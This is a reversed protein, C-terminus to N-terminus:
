QEYTQCHEGSNGDHKHSLKGWFLIGLVVVWTMVVTSGAWKIITRMIERVISQYNQNSKKALCLGNKWSFDIVMFCSNKLMWQKSQRQIDFSSLAAVVSAEEDPLFGISRDIPPLLRHTLDWYREPQRVFYFVVCSQHSSFAPQVQQHMSCHLAM